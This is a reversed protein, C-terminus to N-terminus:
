TGKALAVGPVWAYGDPDIIVCERLGHPKDISGALVIAGQAHARAEAQDPDCGYLRLEVGAGRTEAGQVVGTLANDSYTHDAHVMWESGNFAVVAFDPDQYIIECDLVDRQFATATAVDRVLLNIGLAPKPPMTLSRGYDDAPMFPDDTRLKTM